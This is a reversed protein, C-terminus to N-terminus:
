VKEVIVAYTLYPFHVANKVTLAQPPIEAIAAFSRVQNINLTVFAVNGKWYGDDVRKVFTPKMRCYFTVIRVNKLISMEKEQGSKEQPKTRM